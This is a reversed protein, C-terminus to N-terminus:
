LPLRREVDRYVDEAFEQATRHARAEATGDLGDVRVAVRVLTVNSTRAQLVNAILQAKLAYEDPVARGNVQYWFLVVQRELARAAIVRTAPINQLPGEGGAPLVRLEVRGTDVPHWGLSPLCLLPSHPALHVAPRADQHHGVYLNATRSRADTYYRHTYSQVPLVALVAPDLPVARGHWGAVQLPLGELDVLPGPAAAPVGWTLYTAMGALAGSVILTRVLM